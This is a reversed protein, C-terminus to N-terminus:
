RKKFILAIFTYRRGNWAVPREVPVPVHGNWGELCLGTDGADQIIRRIELESFITWPLGFWQIGTTDVKTPWYDTSVCLLGGKMLLKAATRLFNPVDVGHEITSVATVADLSNDPLGLTAPEGVSYRIARAFPMKLVSEDVDCAIVNTFGAMHLVWPLESGVSGVDLVAAKRPLDATLVRAFRGVDWSKLFELRLRHGTRFGYLLKPVIKEEIDWGASRLWARASAAELTSRLVGIPADDLHLQNM